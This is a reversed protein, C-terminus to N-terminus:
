ISHTHNRTSITSQPYPVKYINYVTPITGQVSVRFTLLNVGPLCVLSLVMDQNGYCCSLLRRSTQREKDERTKGTEVPACQVVEDRPVWGYAYKLEVENRPLGVYVYWM